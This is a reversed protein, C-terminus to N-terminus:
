EEGEYHLTPPGGPRSWDWVFWAHNISPGAKKQELNTWRVRKTLVIKAGWAPCDRFLLSRGGASDFDDRLLLAVRGGVPQMLRLAHEAFERAMRGGVGYPPNTIIARVPARDVTLFDQQWAGEYDPAIDSAFVQLGAEALVRAIGGDGAAPEYVASGPAIPLRRLLAWTAWAPTYYKELHQRLYHRNGFAENM